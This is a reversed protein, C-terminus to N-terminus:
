DGLRLRLELLLIFSIELVLVLVLILVLILLACVNASVITIIAAVSIPIIFGGVLGIRIVVEDHIDFHALDLLVVHIAARPRAAHM